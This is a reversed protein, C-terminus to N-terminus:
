LPLCHEAEALGFFVAPDPETFYHVALLQWIMMHQIIKSIIYHSLHPHGVM